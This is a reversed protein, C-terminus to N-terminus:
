LGLRHLFSGVVKDISLYAEALERAARAHKGYNTRIADMAAVAEEVNQIAFLGLGCPLHKSFGSDQLVVPKGYSLYVGERDGVWGSQTKIFANKAISFEGMSHAIYHRYSDVSRAIENASRLHWGHQILRARPVSSGSVAVEIKEKTHRPLEMFKEFELDKQGYTQGKYSVPQNSTWSMITTFCGQPQSAPAPAHDLMVPTLTHLWSIGSTPATSWATGINLGVSYFYDYARLAKGAELDRALKIHFWGPDGDLFVRVPIEAARDFFNGWEFDIFVDATKFWEDVDAKSRGHYTGSSDIFAWNRGLGYSELLPQIVSIGYRCDNTMESRAVDFCANEWGSDEVLYIDHGHRKLGVLWTLSWLNMGGLPFRIMTTNILIRAM